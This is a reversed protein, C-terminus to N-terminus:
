KPLISMERVADISAGEKATDMTGLPVGEYYIENAKTQGGNVSGVFSVGTAGPLSNYFYESIDREGGPSGATVGCTIIFTLAYGPVCPWKTGAQLEAIESEARSTGQSCFTFSSHCYLLRM